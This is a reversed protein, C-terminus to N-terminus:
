YINANHVELKVVDLFAAKAEVPDTFEKDPHTSLRWTTRGTMGNDYVLRELSVSKYDPHGRHDFFLEVVVEKLEEKPRVEGTFTETWIGNPAEVRVRVELMRVGDIRENINIFYIQRTKGDSGVSADWGVGYQDQCLQGLAEGVEHIAPYSTESEDRTYKFPM